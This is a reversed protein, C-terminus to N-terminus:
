QDSASIYHKEMVAIFKIAVFLFAIVTLKLACMAMLMAISYKHFRKTCLTPCAPDLCFALNKM